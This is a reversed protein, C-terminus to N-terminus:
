QDLIEREEDNDAYKFAIDRFDKELELFADVVDPAFHKGSAIKISNIAERHPYPKKYPRRSILADYVDALAMLRGSIPIEEEKLGRPYGSGDWKEQHTYAMEEAFKLFSERGLNAEAARIVNRGMLTHRKMIEFEEETLDGPKLLINDPIGVKGIDHLPASKYLMEIVSDTLIDKYELKEKMKEALIKIYERTRKIHGGTEPDRYEALTAMSEITSDQTLLLEKTRALVKKEELRFKFVTLMLYLLVISFILFSLPFFIGNNYFFWYASLWLTFIGTVGFALGWVAGARALIFTFFVGFLIILIFVLGTTWNYTIIFDETLITDVISAHVEVGPFISDFPTARLEKLGAASTGLFVMKGNMAESAIKEDLIDAASIYEYYGRPGRFRVLIQGNPDVPITKKQFVISELGSYSFNMMVQDSKGSKMLTALALSPYIKDQHKILLPARRLIGDRDPNINFFGSTNVSRTLEPINCLVNESSFLQSTATSTKADHLSVAKVPHLICNQSKDISEEFHFKTALVFPGTALVASLIRDNDLLTDPINDSAIELTFVESFNELLRGLSTRDPESFIVDLTISSPRQRNIKELLEAVRYRPWPWQGYKKLSKEDIDVIVTKQSGAKQTSSQLFLDYIRYDLYQFSHPFFLYILCLFFTCSIGAVLTSRFNGHRKDVTNQFSLASKELDM